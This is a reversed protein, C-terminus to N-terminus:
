FLWVMSHKMTTKDGLYQTYCYVNGMQLNSM